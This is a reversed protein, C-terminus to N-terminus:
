PLSAASGAGAADAEAFGATAYGAFAAAAEAVVQEPGVAAATDASHVSESENPAISAPFRAPAASNNAELRLWGTSRAARSERQMARRM